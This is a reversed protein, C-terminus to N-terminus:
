IFSLLGAAWGRGLVWRSGKKKAAALTKEWQDQGAPKTQAPAAGTFALIFVLFVALWHALPRNMLVKAANPHPARNM